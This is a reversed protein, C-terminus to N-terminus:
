QDSGYGVRSNSVVFRHLAERSILRRRGIRVHEIEGRSLLEYLASRGIGLQEAADPISLLLPGQDRLEPSGVVQREVGVVEVDTAVTTWDELLGYPKDLELGIKTLADDEDRASIVREARQVRTVRMRYRM